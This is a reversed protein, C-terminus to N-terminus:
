TSALPPCSIDLWSSISMIQPNPWRRFVLLHPVLGLCGKGDVCSPVTPYTKPPRGPKAKAGIITINRNHPVLVEGTKIAYGLSHKCVTTRFYSPCSCTYFDLDNRADDRAISEMMYFAEHDRLLAFFDSCGSPDCRADNFAAWADRNIDGASILTSLESCPVYMVDDADETIITPAYSTAWEQASRWQAFPVELAV